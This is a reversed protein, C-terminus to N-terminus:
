PSRSDILRGAVVLIRSGSAAQIEFVKYGGAEYRCNTPVDDWSTENISYLQEENAVMGLGHVGVWWVSDFSVKVDIGEITLDLEAKWQGPVMTVCMQRVLADHYSHAVTM